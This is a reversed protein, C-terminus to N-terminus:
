HQRGLDQALKTAWEIYGTRPDYGLDKQAKSIDFTRDSTIRRLYELKIKPSKKTFLSLTKQAYALAYALWLSTNKSPPTVGMANSLISYLQKQTIIDNGAALYIEGGIGKEMALKLAQLLDDIHIWQLRNTGHGIIPMRESELMKMLELFPGNFGNGFIVPARLVIGKSAIVLKEALMKTIGYYTSPNCKTAPTAPNELLKDGYVSTSSMYVFRSAKSVSLLNKTGTVNVDHMLQKNVQGYDVMAALHYIKDVGYVATKLSEIDLLNGKVVKAGPIHPDNKDVLICVSNGDALLASALSKGLHGSGGTVLIM